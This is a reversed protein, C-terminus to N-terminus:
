PTLPADCPANGNVVVNVRYAPQSTLQALSKAPTSRQYTVYTSATCALPTGIQNNDMAAIDCFSQIFRANGTGAPDTYLYWLTKGPQFRITAPDGMSNKMFPGVNYSAGGVATNITYPTTSCNATDTAYSLTMLKYTYVHKPHHPKPKPKPKHHKPKPTYTVNASTNATRVHSPPPLGQANAALTPAASFAFGVTALLGGLGVVLAWRATSSTATTM